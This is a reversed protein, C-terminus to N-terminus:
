LKGKRNAEKIEEKTLEKKSIIYIEDGIQFDDPRYVYLGFEKLAESLSGVHRNNYDWGVKYTKPTDKESM